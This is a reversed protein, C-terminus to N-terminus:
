FYVETVDSIHVHIYLHRVHLVYENSVSCLSGEEHLVRMM